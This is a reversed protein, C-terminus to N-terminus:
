TLKLSGTRIEKASAKAGVSGFAANYQRRCKATPINERGCSACPTKFPAGCETCFKLAELTETKRKECLVQWNGKVCETPRAASQRGESRPTSAKPSDTASKRSCRQAGRQPSRQRAATARSVTARLEWWKGSRSRAVQIAKRFCTEAQALASPDRRLIVEGHASGSFITRLRRRRPGSSKLM